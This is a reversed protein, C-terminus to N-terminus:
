SKGNQQKNKLFDLTLATRAQAYSCFDCPGGMAALGVEPMNDNDLCQKMEQLTTEVWDARGSYPLVKTHFELKDAFGELDIRANTYVFYGVDSVTFGNQRLLWQYVEMQRKYAIQWEADISVERNKSTAKYDVVILEGAANHWIDDVAGFM